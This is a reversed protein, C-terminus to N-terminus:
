RPEASSQNARVARTSSEPLLRDPVDQMTVVGLLQGDAASVMAFQSRRQRMTTLARHVPLDPPLVLLPRKLEDVTTSENVDLADRVHVVGVPQTGRWVVLRLHGSVQAVERVRRVPDAASVGSVDAIPRILTRRSCRSLTHPPSEESTKFGLAVAM